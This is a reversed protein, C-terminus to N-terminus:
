MIIKYFLLFYIYLFECQINPSLSLSSFFIFLILRIAFYFEMNNSLYITTTVRTGILQMIINVNIEVFFLIFLTM